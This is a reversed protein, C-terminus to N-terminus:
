GKRETARRLGLPFRAPTRVTGQVNGAFIAVRVCAPSGDAGNRFEVVVGRAVRKAAPVFFYGARSAVGLRNKGVNSLVAGIAMGVYVARLEAGVASLAVGNESPLDRDLRDLLVEVPKRQEARVGDHLALLAMFVGCGSIVQAQRRGARRAVQCIELFGAIGIVDGCLKGGGAFGAM